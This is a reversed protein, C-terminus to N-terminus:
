LMMLVRMENMIMGMMMLFMRFMRGFITYVLLNGLPGVWEVKCFTFYLLIYCNM